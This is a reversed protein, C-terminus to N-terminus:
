DFELPPPLPSTALPPTPFPTPCLPLHLYMETEGGQGLEGGLPVAPSLQHSVHVASIFASEAGPCARPHTPPRAAALPCSPDRPIFQEGRPTPEPAGGAAHLSAPAPLPGLDVPLTWDERPCWGAMSWPPELLQPGSRAGPLQAQLPPLTPIQTLPGGM